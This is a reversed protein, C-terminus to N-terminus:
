NEKKISNNKNLYHSITSSLAAVNIAFLSYGILILGAGVLRGINTVPYLSADGVSCVNLSWWLADPYTLINANIAASEAYLELWAGVFLVILFVGYTSSLLSILTRIRM